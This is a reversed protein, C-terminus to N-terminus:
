ITTDKRKATRRQQQLQQKQAAMYGFLLTTTRKLLTSSRSVGKNLRVLLFSVPLTVQVIVLRINSHNTLISNEHISNSYSRRADAYDCRAESQIHFCLFGSITDTELVDVIRSVKSMSKMM